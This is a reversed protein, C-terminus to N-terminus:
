ATALLKRVCPKALVTVGQAALTDYRALKEPYQAVDAPEYGLSEFFRDALTLAFVQGHGRRRAMAEVGRVALGGLGLRQSAPDVVVSAVEALSPSYSHLAACGQVRGHADVVVVYDDIAAHIEEESRPLLLGAAAHVRVLQAIDAADAAVAGRM